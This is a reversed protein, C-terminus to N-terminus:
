PFRTKLLRNVESSIIPSALRVSENSSGYHATAQLVGFPTAFTCPVDSTPVEGFVSEGYYPTIQTITLKTAEALRKLRLFYDAENPDLLVLIRHEKVCCIMEQLSATTHKKHRTMSSWRLAFARLKGHSGLEFTLGEAGEGTNDASFFTIGDLQRSRLRLQHSRQGSSSQM